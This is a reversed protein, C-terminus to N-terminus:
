PPSAGGSPEAPGSPEARGHLVWEYVPAVPASDCWTVQLQGTPLRVADISGRSHQEAVDEGTWGPPFVIRLTLDNITPQHRGALDATAWILTDRGSRRLPDWLEPARYRLVWETEAQLGPQFLVMVLPQGDVDRLPQVDAQVDLGYVDCALALDEPDAPLGATWSVIPRLMRYILYPKPRTWRREIVTDQGDQQGVTLTIEVREEFLPFQRDILRRTAAAYLQLRQEREAADLDPQASSGEDTGPPTPPEVGADWNPLARLQGRRAVGTKRFVTRMHAEVTRPSVDLRAAIEDNTLGQVALRLVEGERHTLRSTAVPAAEWMILM